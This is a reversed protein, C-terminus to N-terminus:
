RFFKRTLLAANILTRESFGCMNPAVPRLKNAKAIYSWRNTCGQDVLGNNGHLYEPFTLTDGTCAMFFHLPLMSTKGSTGLESVPSLLSPPGQLRDSRKSPLVVGLTISFTQVRSRGIMLCTRRKTLVLQQM